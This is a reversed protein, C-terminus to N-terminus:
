EAVGNNKNETNRNEIPQLGCSS